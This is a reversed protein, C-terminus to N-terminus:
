SGWGPRFLPPQGSEGVGGRWRRMMDEGGEEGFDGPPRRRPLEPSPPSDLAEEEEVVFALDEAEASRTFGSSATM